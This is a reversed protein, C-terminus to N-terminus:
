HQLFEVVDYTVPPNAQTIDNSCFATTSNGGGEIQYTAQGLGGTCDDDNGYIGDPGAVDAVIAAGSVTGGGAGKREVIGRGVVFLIGNWSRGGHMMLEGTVVLTGYGDPDASDIAFVLSTDHGNDIFTVSGYNTGAPLTCDGKCYHTAKSRLTDLMDHLAQCDTWMSDLPGHVLPDGMNTLDSVTEEPTTLAPDTVYQSTIEVEEGKVMKLESEIGAEVSAEAGPGIAGVTPVYYGPIGSSQCDDGSFTQDPSTGSAFDPNPGLLTIAAPPLDPLLPEPEVIAETVELSGSRGVGVGIVMVRDNTDGLDGRGGAEAPDNSLYAAYFGDELATPGRLPVDDGAGTFSTVNGDKDFVPRLAGPDLDITGNGGAAATLDDDFSGTFNTDYLTRRGDEVGSEALYFTRKLEGSAKSMKMENQSVFMLAVGMSGVLVLVFLAMM